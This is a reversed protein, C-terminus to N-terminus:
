RIRRSGLFKIGSIILDSFSPVHAKLRGAQQFIMRLGAYSTREIYSLMSMQSRRVRFIQRYQGLSYRNLYPGIKTRDSGPSFSSAIEAQREDVFRQITEPHFLLQPYPMGLRRNAHLGWPSYYLPDFTQYILGGPKVVRLMEDLAAEPMDFHEFSNISFVLDFSAKPFPLCQCADGPLFRLGSKRVEETRIDILDTAFVNLGLQLLHTSAIGYGCGVELIKCASFQRAISAVRSSWKIQQQTTQELISPSTKPFRENMELLDDYSLYSAELAASQYVLWAATARLRSSDFFLREIMSQIRHPIFSHLMDM